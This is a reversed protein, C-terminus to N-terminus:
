RLLPRGRRLNPADSFFTSQYLWLLFGSSSAIGSNSFLSAHTIPASPEIARPYMISLHSNLPVLSYIMVQFIGNCPAAFVLKAPVIPLAMSSGTCGPNIVTPRVLFGDWSRTWVKSGLPLGAARENWM